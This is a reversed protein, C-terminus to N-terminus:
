SAVRLPVPTTPEISLLLLIALIFVYQLYQLFADCYCTLSLVVGNRGDVGNTLINPPSM